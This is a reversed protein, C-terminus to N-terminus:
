RANSWRGLWAVPYILWALPMLYWYQRRLYRRSLRRVWGDAVGEKERYAPVQTMHLHHGIEHFLTDGVLMERLPPLRLVWRPCERLIQDVFLEIWPQQGNWAPHYRGAVQDISVKRGRSRSKRRRQGHSLAELNTLIIAKVGRVQREDVRSLLRLVTHRVDFPAVYDRYAEIVEPTAGM